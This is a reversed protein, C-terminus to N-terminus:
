HRADNVVRPLRRSTLRPSADLVPREPPPVRAGPQHPTARSARPPSRHAKKAGRRRHSTAVTVEFPMDWYKNFGWLSAASGHSLVGGKGCALVAASARAVPTVNVHGVAYVGAHVPILHGVEVRCHIAPRSLGIALLRARTIYGYQPGAVAAIARNFAAAM